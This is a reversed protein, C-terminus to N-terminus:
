EIEAAFIISKKWMRLRAYLLNKNKVFDKCM